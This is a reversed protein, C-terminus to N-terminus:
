SENRGNRMKRGCNPCFNADGRGANVGRIDLTNKCKSCRVIDKTVFTAFLRQKDVILEWEATDPLSMLRGVDEETYGDWHKARELEKCHFVDWYKDEYHYGYAGDPTDITVLFWGGGFCQSAWRDCAWRDPLRPGEYKCEVLDANTTTLLPRAYLCNRCYKEEM